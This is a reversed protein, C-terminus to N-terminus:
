LTEESGGTAQRGLEGGAQKNSFTLGNLKVACKVVVVSLTQTGSDAHHM